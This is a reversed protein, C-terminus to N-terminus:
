RRARRSKDRFHTTLAILPEIAEYADETRLGHARLRRFTEIVPASLDKEDLRFEPKKPVPDVGDPPAQSAASAGGGSRLGM